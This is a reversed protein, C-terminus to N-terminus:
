LKFLFAFLDKKLWDQILTFVSFASISYPIRLGYLLQKTISTEYPELSAKHTPPSLTLSFNNAPELISRSKFFFVYFSPPQSFFLYDFVAIFTEPVVILNIHFRFFGYDLVNKLNGASVSMNLRYSM